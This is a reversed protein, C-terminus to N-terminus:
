FSHGTNILPFEPTLRPLDAVEKWYPLPSYGFDAANKSYIEVKGSPTKYDHEKYERKSHLVRKRKMDEEYQLGSPKLMTDLADDDSNMRRPGMWPEVVVRKMGRIRADAM